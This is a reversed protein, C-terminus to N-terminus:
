EPAFRHRQDRVPATEVGALRLGEVLHEADERRRFPYFELMWAVYQAPTARRDGAWVARMNHVFRKAQERAEDVRGDYALAAAKWASFQPSPDVIKGAIEVMDRYRRAVFYAEALDALYSDPHYPNLRMGKLMTEIAAEPEGLYVLTTGRDMARDADNPNLRAAIEVHKRAAEFERRWMHCWALAIHTHADNDDLSAAKLAIQHASERLALVAPSGPSYKAITNDIRVLFNLPAAFQPDLKAAEEFSKRALAMGASDVAAYFQAKGRLYSDYARMQRTPHRRALELENAELKPVLTAAISRTIEDQVAFLDSIAVDYKEAWAHHRSDANILQVTIRARDELKRVSGEVVFQVGLENGIQVPDVGKDRYAQTSNRAVVSITRFRSLETIVDETIGDSFYQQDPDGSLNAFPLVAISPIKADPPPATRAAPAAAGSRFVRVPHKLNKASREGMDEFQVPVKDHVQQVISHSVWTEGPGALAQIRAAVNVGDGFVDDDDLMVDGLNIGIRFDLRHSEPVGKNRTAFGAQLSEACTVANVASDFEVLVGDGLTKILRGSHNAIAPRIVAKLCAKFDALTRVEDEGMLRSYGAIDAMLIAALKRRV